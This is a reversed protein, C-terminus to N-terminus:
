CLSIAIAAICRVGWQLQSRGDAMHAEYDAAHLQSIAVGGHSREAVIDFHMGLAYHVSSGAAPETRTAGEPAQTQRGNWRRRPPRSRSLFCLRCTTPQSHFRRRRLCLTWQQPPCGWVRTPRSPM